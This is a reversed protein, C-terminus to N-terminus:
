RFLKRGGGFKVGSTGFTSRTIGSEDGGNNKDSDFGLGWVRRLRTDVVVVAAMKASNTTVPTNGM